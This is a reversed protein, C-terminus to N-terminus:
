LTGLDRFHLLISVAGDESVQESQIVFLVKADVDVPIQKDLYVLLKGNTQGNHMDLVPCKPTM